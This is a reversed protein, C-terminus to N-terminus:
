DPEPLPMQWWAAYRGSDLQPQPFPPPFAVTTGSRGLQNQGMHFVGRQDVHYEADGTVGFEVPWARLVWGDVLDGQPNPLLTKGLAYMYHEDRAYEVAESSIEPLARLTSHAEAVSLIGPNPQRRRTAARCSRFADMLVDLAQFENARLTESRQIASLRLGAVVILLVVVIFPGALRM